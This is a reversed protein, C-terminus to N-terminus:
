PIQEMNPFFLRHEATVLRLELAQDPQVQLIDQAVIESAQTVEIRYSGALVDDFTATGTTSTTAERRFGTTEDILSVSAGEVPQDSPTQVRITANAPHLALEVAALANLRGFGFIPNPSLPGTGDTCTSAVPVPTAGKILAQETMEIDGILNPAASWLLAAAGAVHPSAMSTGSLMKYGGNITASNTSVGPAAIDPKMRGSSDVTVPGVSSFSAISGNFDHAGVSFTADYIAIPNQVSSCGSWGENGASSVVFIGAARITEVVQKLTDADCGESPPCAWSNNIIHPAQVPKGDIAPDGDPPYPALFFEFCTIYSAPTGVGQLMNRCGIWQADPAMGVQTYTETENGLMTGVTHTGHGSGHDDCPVAADNECRAPRGEVGWADLWNYTHTESKDEANWGRYRAQLAPHNWEVGTDQSAVVIGKGTHGLAWLDDANTDRLGYPLENNQRVDITDLTQLWSPLTPKDPAILHAQQIQPNSILREVDPHRRLDDALEASGIVEIMNAIYFTRYQIGREDLWTRLSLQSQAAHETLAAYTTQLQSERMEAGLNASHIVLRGVDFQDKLVVLFSVEADGTALEAELYTSIEALEAGAPEVEQALVSENCLLAIAFLSICFTLLWQRRNIRHAFPQPSSFTTTQGPM